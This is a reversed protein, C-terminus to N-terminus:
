HMMPSQCIGLHSKTLRSSVLFLKESKLLSFTQLNMYRIKTLSSQYKVQSLEFIENQWDEVLYCALPFTNGNHMMSPVNKLNKKKM